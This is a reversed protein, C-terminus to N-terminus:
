MDVDVQAPGWRYPDLTKVSAALDDSFRALGYGVSMM